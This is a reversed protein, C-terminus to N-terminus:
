NYRFIGATKKEHKRTSNCNTNTCIDTIPNVNESQNTPVRIYYLTAGFAEFEKCTFFNFVYERM